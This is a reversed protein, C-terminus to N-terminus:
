IVCTSFPKNDPAPPRIKPRDVTGRRIKIAPKAAEVDVPEPELGLSYVVFLIFADIGVSSVCMVVMFITSARSRSDRDDIFVAFTAIGFVIGLFSAIQIITRLRADTPKPLVPSTSVVVQLLGILFIRIVAQPILLYVLEASLDAYNAAVIIVESILILILLCTFVQTLRIPQDM